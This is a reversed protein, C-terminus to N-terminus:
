SNAARKAVKAILDAQLAPDVPVGVSTFDVEAEILTGTIFAVSIYIEQKSGGATVTIKGKGTAVVNDPHGAAGPTIKISVGQVTSGAPLSGALKSKFLTDYCGSVKSSKLIAIDADLDSQSKYRSANSSIQIEGKSFSASNADATKDASTDKGGICAVLAAQDAKDSPDAQYPTATYGAPLDTSQLPIADLAASGTPTSM